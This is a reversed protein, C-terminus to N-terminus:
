YNAKAGSVIGIGCRYQIPFSIIKYYNQIVVTAFKNPGKLSMNPKFFVRKIKNAVWMM